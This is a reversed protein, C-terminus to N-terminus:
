GAVRKRLEIVERRHQRCERLTRRGEAPNTSMLADGAKLLEDAKATLREIRAYLEASM